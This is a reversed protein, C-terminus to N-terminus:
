HREAWQELRDMIKFGETRGFEKGKVMFSEWMITNIEELLKWLDQYEASRIVDTKRLPQNLEENMAKYDREDTM